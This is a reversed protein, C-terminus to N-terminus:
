EEWVANGKLDKVQTSWAERIKKILKDSLTIYGLETATESGKTFGWNFFRLISDGISASEQIKRMLIYNAGIIPWSDKGPLNTLSTNFGNAADWQVNEIAAQFSDSGAEVFNGDRNQLKVIPLKHSVAHAYGIYGISGNSRKVYRALTESDKASKGTVWSLIMGEGIKSKWSESIKSLYNTFIFTTGSGKARRFVIITKNPIAVGANLAVIKPDNWKRIKGMYIDALVEGTLKLQGSPIGDLNFVPVVGNIVTPFQFLKRKDLQDAPLPADIAGFDVLKKYLQSIGSTSHIPTYRVLSYTESKYTDSWEAYLPATSTAGAGSIDVIAMSTNAFALAFFASTVLTFRKFSKIM